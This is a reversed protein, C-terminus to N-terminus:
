RETLWCFASVSRASGGFAFFMERVARAPDDRATDADVLLPLETAATIRRVDTLVDDLKTMGLDPIGRSANAVGGGSLNLARFGPREALLASFANIAGAIQLSREEALAARFRAGPPSRQPSTM